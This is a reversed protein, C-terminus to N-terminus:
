RGQSCYAMGREGGEGKDEEKGKGRGKWEKGVGREEKGM